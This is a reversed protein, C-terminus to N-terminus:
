PTAAIAHEAGGSGYAEADIVVFFFAPQAGFVARSCRSIFFTLPQICWEELGAEVFSVKEALGSGKM